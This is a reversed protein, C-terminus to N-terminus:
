VTLEKSETITEPQSPPDIKILRTRLIAKDDSLLVMDKSATVWEEGCHICYSIQKITNEIVTFLKGISYPNGCCLTPKVVMVLDGVKINNM